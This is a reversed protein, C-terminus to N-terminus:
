QMSPCFYKKKGRSNIPKMKTTHRSILFGFLLTKPNLSSPVEVGVAVVVGVTVAVGVLVGVGLGM